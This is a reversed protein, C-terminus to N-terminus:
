KASLRKVTLTINNSRPEVTVEQVASDPHILAKPQVRRAKRSDEDEDPEPASFTVRHKGPVAGDAESKHSLVFAGGQDITGISSGGGKASILSFNVLYGALEKAPQGDDFKVVGRVPYPRNPDAACGAAVVVLLSLWAAQAGSRANM